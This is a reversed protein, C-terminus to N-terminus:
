VRKPSVPVPEINWIQEAYEQMARDSSFKGMNASCLISKRAWGEKDMYAEDVLKQADLYSQFDDSILYYDKGNTLTNILPAFIRSDGFHSSEIDNIVAQLAPDMPVNRYRHAHRLDDVQHALNGFMFINDEGIEECIEINAGDVTGLILGGNLVFKMNSTGSAETGATSIHQSIDSAPIIIEAVSVNYDPIFVVKLTDEISNDNNVVEAVSNILKIVLKAIYYGPAAKGGFIVVRPVVDAREASTMKKLINYRHIVGLINMFQRKYEHIRKVQVDFLANSNVIIGTSKKIYEAL